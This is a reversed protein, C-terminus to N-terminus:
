KVGGGGYFDITDRGKGYRDLNGYKGSRFLFLSAHKCGKEEIVWLRLVERQIEQDGTDRVLPDTEDMEKRGAGMDTKQKEM